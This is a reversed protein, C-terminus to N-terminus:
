WDKEVPVPRGIILRIQERDAQEQRRAADLLLSAEEETMEEPKREPAPKADSNQNASDRASAPQQEQGGQNEDPSPEPKPQEGNPDPKPQEPKQDPDSKQDQNGQQSPQNQQQQKLAEELQLKKLVALEFNIKPDEDRSDLAMANQYMALSEAVARSAPELQQQQELGLAQALLANGRNFYAKQQLKLDPTRLSEAYARAAEDARGARLLANARNYHASAPDLSAPGASEAAAAFNSAAAPFDGSEFAQRGRQMWVGPAQASATATATALILFWRSM